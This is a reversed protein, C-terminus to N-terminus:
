REVEKFVTFIWSRAVAGTVGSVAVPNGGEIRSMGAIIFGGLTPADLTNRIAGDVVSISPSTGDIEGALAEPITKNRKEPNIIVAILSCSLEMMGTLGFAHPEDDTRPEYIGILLKKFKVTSIEELTSRIVVNEPEIWRALASIELLEERLAKLFTTEESGDSAAM